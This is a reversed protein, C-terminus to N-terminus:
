EDMLRRFRAPQQGRLGDKRCANRQSTRRLSGRTTQAWAQPMGIPLLFHKHVFWGASVVVHRPRGQDVDVIFGEVVGLKEGDAGEVIAGALDAATGTLEPADVYRLEPRTHDM